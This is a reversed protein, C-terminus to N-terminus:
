KSKRPTDKATIKVITAEQSLKARAKATAKKGPKSISAEDAIEIMEQADGKLIHHQQVVAVLNSVTYYLAVAGYMRIMIFFMMIPMFKTMKGMMAANIEAQNAQKGDATESMLDRLRKKSKQQPMTQKSMIYQTVAAGVALLLLFVDQLQPKSFNAVKTLDLFGLFYNNFIKPNAILDKIPGIGKLFSYTFSAIQERQLTFIRIVSFLAIFIPLQIFLVGISSFPNVEHKKYLEMMMMSEKQKDGKAQAKIKAMEPQIKQMAKAQHLQKKVLPWMLLRVIITFIIVAIGFDGGPMISYLVFLLNFIPKVVIADFM